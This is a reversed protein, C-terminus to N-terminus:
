HDRQMENQVERNCLLLERTERLREAARESRDAQARLTESLALLKGEEEELYRIFVPAREKLLFAGYRFQKRFDEGSSDKGSVDERSVHEGPFAPGDWTKPNRVDLITYYKEEEYVMSERVIPFKHEWLWQRVKPIESHPSFVWQNVSEWMHEGQELIHILLEGGMGAIIVAEAEGPHLKNLGDSLRTEIKEELGAAKVNEEARSLPGKRVDMALARKVLKRRVLEVPVYGHDTGIDAAAGECAVFSLVTELRDSLKM